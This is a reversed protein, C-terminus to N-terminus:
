TVPFPVKFPPLDTRGSRREGLLLLRDALCNRRLELRVLAGLM